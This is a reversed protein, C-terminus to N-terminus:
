DFLEGKIAKKIFVVVVAIIFITGATLMISGVIEIYEKM